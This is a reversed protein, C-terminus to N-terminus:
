KWVRRRLSSQEIYSIDTGFKNSLSVKVSPVGDSGDEGYGIVRGRIPYGHGAMAWMLMATGGSHKVKGAVQNSEFLHEVYWKVYKQTPKVTQGIKFKSM